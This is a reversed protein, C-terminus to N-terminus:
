AMAARRSLDRAARQLQIHAREIWPQHPELLPSGPAAHPAVSVLRRALNKDRDGGCSFALEICPRASHFRMVDIM